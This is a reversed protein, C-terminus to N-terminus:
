APASGTRPPRPPWGSAAAPSRPRQERIQPRHPRPVPRRLELLPALPQPDLPHRQMRIPIGPRLPRQLAPIRLPERLLRQPVIGLRHMMGVRLVRLDRHRRQIIPLLLPLPLWRCPSLADPTLPSRLRFAPIGFGATTCTSKWAWGLLAASPALSTETQAPRPHTQAPQRPPRAPGLSPAHSPASTLGPHRQVRHGFHCHLQCLGHRLPRAQIHLQQGRQRVSDGRVLLRLPLECGAGRSTKVRQPLSWFDRSCFILVWFVM